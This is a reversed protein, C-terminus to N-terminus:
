RRRGEPPPVGAAALAKVGQSINRVRAAMIEWTQDPGTTGEVAFANNTERVRDFVKNFTDEMNTTGYVIWADEIAKLWGDEEGTLESDGGDGGGVALAELEDRTGYFWNLDVPPTVGPCTGTSSYQWLQGDLTTRGGCLDGPESAYRSHWFTLEKRITPNGINRLWWCPYYAVLWVGWRDFVRKEFEQVQSWTADDESDLSILLGECGPVAAEAAKRFADFQSSVSPSGYIRHRAMGVLGADLARDITEHWYPDVTTRSTTRPFLGVKGSGAVAEADIHGRYQSTDICAVKPGSPVAVV